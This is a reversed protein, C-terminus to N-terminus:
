RGMLLWDTWSFASTNYQKYILGFPQVSVYNFLRGVLAANLGWLNSYRLNSM